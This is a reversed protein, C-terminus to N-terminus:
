VARRDAAHVGGLFGDDGLFMEAFTQLAVDIEHVQAGEALAELLIVVAGFLLSTAAVRSKITSYRPSFSLFSESSYSMTTSETPMCGGLSTLSSASLHPM